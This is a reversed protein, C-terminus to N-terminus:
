SHMVKGTRFGKAILWISLGIEFLGGPISFCLGFPYGSLELLTGAIFIPYGIYGWVPLYGPVLKSRQLLYCLVLGGLGWITMGLQYSYFNGSTCYQLLAQFLLTSDRDSTTMTESVSLPLLLLIGGAALLITSAIGASFYLYSLMRNFTQLVSLMATLACLNLLSHVLIVLTGGWIIGSKAAIITGPTANAEQVTELLGM